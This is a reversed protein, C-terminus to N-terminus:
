PAQRRWELRRNRRRGTHTILPGYPIVQKKGFREEKDRKLLEVMKRKEREFELKDQKKKDFARKLEAEELKKRAISLEKERCVLLKL